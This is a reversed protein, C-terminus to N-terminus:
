GYGHMRELCEKQAGCGGKGKTNAENGCHRGLGVVDCDVHTVGVERVMGRLLHRVRDAGTIGIVGDRLPRVGRHLRAVRRRAGVAVCHEVSGEDRARAADAGFVRGAEDNGVEFVGVDVEPAVRAAVFVHGLEVVTGGAGVVNRRRARFGYPDM